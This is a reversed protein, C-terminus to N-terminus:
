FASSSGRSGNTTTKYPLTNFELSSQVFCITACVHNIHKLVHALLVELGDGALAHERSQLGLSVESARVKFLDELLHRVLM